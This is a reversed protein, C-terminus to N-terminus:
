LKQLHQRFVAQYTIEKQLNHELNAVCVDSKKNKM